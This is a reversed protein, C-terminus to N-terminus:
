NKQNTALLTLQGVSKTVPTTICDGHTPAFVEFGSLRAGPQYAVIQGALGITDQEIPGSFHMPGADTPITDSFTASLHATLCTGKYSGTIGFTGPGTVHHGDFTGTCTISGVKGGSDVIGSTPTLSFGPSASVTSVIACVANTGGQVTEVQFPLYIPQALATASAAPADLSIGITMAVALLTYRARINKM